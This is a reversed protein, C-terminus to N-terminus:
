RRPMAELASFGDSLADIRVAHLGAAQLLERYAAETRERGGPGVLMNLDSRAFERDAPASSLRRPMMRELVFLRAHAPMAERCRALITACREDDWDHLISKLLYADAGGPVADFFSGTALECRDAVGASALVETAMSRAHAMDFLVGRMGPHAALITALLKGAGGGVDVVTRVGTFDIAAVAARAIPKTLDTMARNFVRAADPDEDLHEFGSEGRALERASRGTRVSDPLRAWNTWLRSGSLTAWAAVSGDVDSRLLRGLETLAFEGEPEESLLELSTLARLLRLLSPADCEAAQALRDAPLPGNSLREPLRLQVATAIAQTMWGANIMQLLRTREM